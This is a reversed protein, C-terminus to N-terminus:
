EDELTTPEEEVKAGPDIPVWGHMMSQLWGHQKECQWVPTARGTAADSMRREDVLLAGCTPNRREAETM